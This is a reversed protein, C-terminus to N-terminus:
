AQFYIESEGKEIINESNEVIFILFHFIVGNPEDFKEKLGGGERGKSWEGPAILMRKIM